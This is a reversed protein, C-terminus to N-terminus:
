IVAAFPNRTFPSTSTKRCNRASRSPLIPEAAKSVSIASNFVCAVKNPLTCLAASATTELEASFCPM